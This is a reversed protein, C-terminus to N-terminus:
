GHTDRAARERRRRRMAATFAAACLVLLLAAGVVPDIRGAPTDSAPTSTKASSSATSIRVADCPGVRPQPAAAPATDLAYSWGEAGGATVARSAAGTSSFQWTCSGPVATWYSWYAGSPPTDTCTERYSDRGNFTLRESAAPRDDIRCVFSRGFRTTGTVAFGAAELTQVGNTSSREITGCRALPAVDDLQQPDVVVLAEGPGCPSSSTTM